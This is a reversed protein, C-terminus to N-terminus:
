QSIQPFYGALYTQWFQPALTQVNSKLLSVPKHLLHKFSTFSFSFGIEKFWAGKKVKLLPNISPKVRTNIPKMKIMNEKRKVLRLSDTLLVPSTPINIKGKKKKVPM